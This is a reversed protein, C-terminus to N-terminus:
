PHWEPLASLAALALPDVCGCYERTLKLLGKRTRFFLRGHWGINKSRRNGKRQQVGWQLRHDVVRWNENLVIPFSQRAHALRYVDPATPSSRRGEEASERVGQRAERRKGVPQEPSTSPQEAGILAPHAENLSSIRRAARAPLKVEVGM